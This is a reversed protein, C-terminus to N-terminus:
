ALRLPPPASSLDGYRSIGTSKIIVAFKLFILM